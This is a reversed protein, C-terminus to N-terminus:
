RKCTLESKIQKIVASQNLSNNPKYLVPITPKRFLTGADAHKELAKMNFKGHGQYVGPAFRKECALNYLRQKSVRLIQAVEPITGFPIM